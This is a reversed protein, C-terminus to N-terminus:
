FLVSEEVSNKNWVTCNLFKDFCKECVGIASLDLSTNGALKAQLYGMETLPADTGFNLFGDKREPLMRPLNLDFAHYKGNADFAKRM